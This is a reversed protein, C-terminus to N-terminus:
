GNDLLTSDLTAIVGDLIEKNGIVRRLEISQSPKGSPHVTVWYEALDSSVPAHITGYIEIPELISQNYTPSKIQVEPPTADGLVRLEVFGGFGAYGTNGSLDKASAVFKYYGLASPQGSVVLMNPAILTRGTIDLDFSINRTQWTSSDLPRYEVLKLSRSNADIGVNDMAVVSVLAQGNVELNEPTSSFTVTPAVTDATLTINILDSDLGGFGDSVSRQFTYPTNAMVVPTSWTILGTKQDIALGAPLNGSPYSTLSYSLEDKDADTAKSSLSLFQGGFIPPSGAPPQNPLAELDPNANTRVVVKQLKRTFFEGDFVTLTFTYTGIQALTPTWSVAGTTLNITMGSPENSLSYTLPSSPAPDTATVFKTSSDGVIWFSPLGSLIVPPTNVAPNYAILSVVQQNSGGRSDMVRIVFHHVSGHSISAPVSWTIVGQQSVSMGAPADVLMYSTESRPQDLDFADVSYSYLGGIPAYQPPLSRIMPAINSSRVTLEYAFRDSGGYGDSVLLEVSHKGIDSEKPIWTMQGSRPNISLGDPGKTVSWILADLDADVAIASAKYNYGVTASPFPADDASIVPASNRLGNTVTVTTIQETVLNDRDSIAKIKVVHTTETQNAPNKPPTWVVMQGKELRMSNPKTDGFTYSIDDGDLDTADLQLSYLIGAPLTTRFRSQIDPAASTSVLAQVVFTQTAIAGSQDVVQVTLEHKGRQSPDNTAYTIVGTQDNITAGQPANILSFRLGSVDEDNPDTANVDYSFSNTGIIFRRDVVSPIASTIQPPANHLVTLTFEQVAVLEENENTRDERVQIKVRYQGAARPIGSLLGSDANITLWSPAELLAFKLTDGNPDIVQVPYRYELDRAAPGNPVSVIEPPENLQFPNIASVVFRQETMQGSSNSIEIVVPYNGISEPYWTILGSNNISMGAPGSSLRYTLNSDLSTIQYSYASSDSIVKAVPPMSTIRPHGPLHNTVVLTTAQVTRIPTNDIGLSGDRAKIVLPFARGISGAPPTFSISQGSITGVSDQALEYVIPNGELDTAQTVFTWPQGSVLQGSPSNSFTPWTNLERFRAQMMYQRIQSDEDTLNVVVEYAPNDLELGTAEDANITILGTPSVSIAGGDPVPVGNKRLHVYSYVIENSDGDPDIGVLQHTWQRDLYIPGTPNNDVFAHEGDDSSPLVAAFVEDFAEGGRGDSIKIKVVPDTSGRGSTFRIQDALTPTWRIVQNPDITMGPQSVILEYQLPDGDPDVADLAYTWTSGTRGDFPVSRIIPPQNEFAVPLSFSQFSAHKGQVDDSAKIIVRYNGSLSAPVWEIKAKGHQGPIPTVTMGAPADQLSFVINENLNEPDVANVEYTWKKGILAPGVPNTTFQPPDNPLPIENVVEITFEQRDVGGRRDDVEVVIRHFGLTNPTPSWYVVNGNNLLTMGPPSQILRYVLTDGNPDSAEIQYSWTYNNSGTSRKAFEFPVSSIVPAENPTSVRLDFRQVDIGGQGDRVAVSVTHNGLDTSTPFWSITNTVPDFVMGSPSDLMAFTLPDGDQDSARLQYQYSQNVVAVLPPTSVFLPRHNKYSSDQKVEIAFTSITEGGRGDSVLVNLAHTGLQSIHPTWTLRGTQSDVNLGSPVQVGSNASSIQYSLVDNNADTAQVMFEFPRGVSAAKTGIPDVTPSQNNSNMEDVDVTWIQKAAGGRGDTVEVTFSYEGSDTPPLWSIIGSDRDITAGHSEGLLSYTLKDNDVDIANVDYNYSHNIGIPMRGLVVNTGHRRFELVFAHAGGDGTFSLNVAQSQDPNLRFRTPSTISAVGSQIGNGSADVLSVDVDYEVSSIASEIAKIIGNKYATLNQRDFEVYLPDGPEVDENPILGSLSQGTRNIAGTLRALETLMSRPSPPVIGQPTPPHPAGMGVFLAGLQVLADVADQISAASPTPVYPNGTLNAYAPDPVSNCAALQPSHVLYSNGVLSKLSSSIGDAGEVTTDVCGSTEFDVRYRTGFDSTGIVIPLSGARFGAGGLRNTPVSQILDVPTFQLSWSSSYPLTPLMRNFESNILSFYSTGDISGDVRVRGSANLGDFYTPRESDQMWSYRYGTLPDIRMDTTQNYNAWGRVYHPVSAVSLLTLKINLDIQSTAASKVFVIYEGNRPLVYEKFNITSPGFENGSIAKTPIPLIREGFNSYVEFDIYEIDYANVNTDLRVSSGEVGNFRFLRLDNEFNLSTPYNIGFEIPQSQKVVDMLEFNFNSTLSQTSVKLYYTGPPIGGDGVHSYPNIWGGPGRISQSVIGASSFSSLVPELTDTLIEWNLHSESSRLIPLTWDQSSFKFFVPSSPSLSAVHVRESVQITTFSPVFPSNGSGLEARLTFQFEEDLFRYEEAENYDYPSPDPFLHLASRVKAVPTQDVIVSYTGSSPLSFEFGGLISTPTLVFGNPTYVNLFRTAGHRNNTEELNTLIRLKQGSTGQYRFVYGKMSSDLTGGVTENIRLEPQSMVDVIRFGARLDTDLLFSPSESPIQAPPVDANRRDIGVYNRDLDIVTQSALSGAEGTYDLSTSDGVNFADVGLGTALQYLGEILAEEADNGGRGGSTRSLASAIIEKFRPHNTSIVPQNLTFPVGIEGNDDTSFQSDFPTTTVLRFDDFRSIGIGVDVNPFLTTISTVIAEFDHQLLANVETFSFTDDMLLMIDVKPVGDSLSIQVAKSTSENTDLMLTLRDNNTGIEKVDGLPTLRSAANEFKIKPVSTIVPPNNPIPAIKVDFRQTSYNKFSDIARIALSRTQGADTGSPVFSITATGNGHNTLQFGQVSDMSFHVEDGDPDSAQVLYSYLEGPKVDTVPVSTIVPASNSVIVDLKFSQTDFAGFPDVVRVTIDHRGMAPTTWTIMGTQSDIAMGLPANVLSFVLPDNDVDAALVRYKYPSYVSHIETPKSVIKPASNWSPHNGVVIAYPQEVWFPIEFGPSVGAQVVESFSPLFDPFASVLHYDTIAPRFTANHVRETFPDIDWFRTVADDANSIDRLTPLYKRMLKADGATGVRSDVYQESNLGAFEGPLSLERIGADVPWLRTTM